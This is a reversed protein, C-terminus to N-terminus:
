RFVEDLRWVLNLADTWGTKAFLDLLNLLDEMCEEDDRVVHRYDALVIEVLQVIDMVAISDLTYGFRESSSVVGSALHLVEKPNYVLFSTLLKIFNHATPAFMLGNEKDLAFDIIQQMLPNVGNFILSLVDNNTSEANNRSNSERKYAVSFYLRTIIEDLIAYTNRLEQEAEETKQERFTSSSENIAPITVTVIKELLIISRKLNEQFDSNQSQKPDIYGKIIQKVFRTLLNAYRIPEKLFNENITTLAWQNQRVIALGVILFSFPDVTGMKQQPMSNNELMKAMVRATKEDNEKTPRIVNTLASYLCEQVISNEEIDARNNIIQWFRDPEKSYLNSLYMAVLMKVSPVPDDALEEITSLIESDPKYSAIRLLGEVAYHRPQSSYGPFDFQEDNEPDLIPEEHNAAEFLVKRCFVFSENDLKDAIRGLIAACEAIKHFLSNIVEKEAHPNNKAAYAERLQPLVLKVAENSPSSNRWDSSFQVLPKSLNLLAQNEHKDPDIGKEKLLKEETVSEWGTHFSVLPRNEPVNKEREMDQRIEKARNTQLLELPIQALLKDRQRELLNRYEEDRNIDIPYELISEEIQLRQKPKFKSSASELFQRLEYFCEAHLQIPKAICLEFLRSAFVEPIQSGILLLKKWFFAVVVNDRFVDLLSELCTDPEESTALEEMYEFISEAMKIPEDSSERANWIYSGDEMFYADQNRFNFVEVLDKLSSEERLFPVVNDMLIFVNLSQIGAATAILPEARLFNPFHKVLRYQCMRYDQSRFSTMPLVYGGMNIKEKSTEIHGFVTRYTDAVFDPDSPWISDVNETLWTLFSLPFNVKDTLELVKELLARSEEINTHYTKAVLPVAMRGGLRNYWDNDSTKKVDWVWQLIRRGISGCIEVVKEDTTDALIDSTLKTLDWAFNDHLYQSAEDFFYIWPDVRKINLTLLSQLLRIIAEEANVESNQLKELLQKLQVIERAEHAIVSTPILRAVLRLHVSQNSPLIHWFASWFSELNYYWLRTFFYTLSPRLFLPRSPDETIFAELKQPEDEILLVSIAYDFLINHSFTINQKTSSDMTLIEDSLLNEFATMRIPKDLDLNEYIEFEKVSLSSKDVMQRAIGELIHKKNRDKIRREWFEQFLQVESHIQSFDPDKGPSQLIKELLWLNFPNSLIEEKFEDSGNEYIYIPCEIQESAPEIQGLALLIENKELIPINFHRCQIGEIHYETQVSNDSSSFMDLLDQSKKADYTRVTVVVNWNDLEQIARQILILFNKRKEEDRAADFGDFFLIGKKDSIPVSKLSDILDGQFSFSGPWGKPNNGDLLDIPLLLHPIDESKLQLLLEKILYTKGVGPSGIVIGNNQVAFDYLSHRVESRDINIKSSSEKDRSYNNVSEVWEMLNQPSSNEQKEGFHQKLIDEIKRLKELPFGSIERLLDKYDLIDNDKNFSFRSQIIKEFEVRYSKQKETLIYIRLHNYEKYLEHDVFKKLTNKIKESRPNSTIQYATRTRKDGLDIAPFNPNEHTNLNILDTHGFIESFLPILVTESILNIDTRSMANASKVRYLFISMLEEIKEQSKQLNM